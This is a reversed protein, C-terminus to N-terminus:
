LSEDPRKRKPRRKIDSDERTVTSRKKSDSLQQSSQPKNDTSFGGHLRMHGNLAAGNKFTKKCLQCQVCKEEDFTYTPLIKNGAKQGTGLDVQQQQQELNETSRLSDNSDMSYDGQLNSSSEKTKVYATEPLYQKYDDHGGEHIAALIDQHQNEIHRKLSRADCYTRSCGPAKCKHPKDEEHTLMHGHLHDLRKFGKNCKECKHRRDQSHTLKHKALASKNAFIKTCDAYTCCHRNQLSQFPNKIQTSGNTTMPTSTKARNPDMKKRTKKQVVIPVTVPTTTTRQSISEVKTGNENLLRDVIMDPTTTTDKSQENEIMCDTNTMLPKKKTTLSNDYHDKENDSNNITKGHSHHHNNLTKILDKNTNFVTDNLTQQETKNSTVSADFTFYSKSRSSTENNNLQFGASHLPSSQNFSQQFSKCTSPSLVPQHQMLHLHNDPHNDPHDDLALPNPPTNLVQSHGRIYLPSTQSLHPQDQSSQKDQDVGSASQPQNQQQQKQKQQLIANSTADVDAVLADISASPDEDDDDNNNNDDNVDIRNNNNSTNNYHMKQDNNVNISHEHLHAVMLPNLANNSWQSTALLRINSNNNNSNLTKPTSARSNTHNLILPSHLQIQSQQTQQNYSHQITSSQQILAMKQHRPSTVISINSSNNPSAPVSNYRQVPSQPPPFTFATTNNILTHQQNPSSIHSTLFPYTHPTHSGTRQQSQFPTNVTIAYMQQQQQIHQHHPQIVYSASYPSSQEDVITLDISLDKPRSSRRMTSFAVNHNTHFLDTSNNSIGSSSQQQQTQSGNIYGYQQSSQQNVGVLPQTTYM